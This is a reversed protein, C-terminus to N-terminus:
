MKQALSIDIDYIWQIIHTTINDNKRWAYIDDDPYYGNVICDEINSYIKTFLPELNSSIVSEMVKPSKNTALKWLESANTSFRPQSLSLNRYIVKVFRMRLLLTILILLKLVLLKINTILILRQWVRLANSENQEREIMKM